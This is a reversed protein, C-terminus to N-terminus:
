MQDYLRWLAYIITDVAPAIQTVLTSAENPVTTWGNFTYGSRTLQPFPAHDAVIVVEHKYVEIVIWEDEPYNRAGNGAYTVTVKVPDEIVYQDGDPDAPDVPTSPVGPNEPDGPVTGPGDKKGNGQQVGIWYAYVTTDALMTVTTVKTTPDYRRLSWDDNFDYGRRTLGTPAYTALTVVTHKRIGPVVVPGGAGGNRDFTLSFVWPDEIVYWTDNPGSPNSPTSPVGPNDPDGPESAVTTTKGDGLQMGNWYAWVTMDDDVFLENTKTRSDFRRTSWGGFDWGLRILGTPGLTNLYVTDYKLVTHSVLTSASDGNGNFTLTVSFPDEIVYWEEPDEPDPTPPPDDPNDPDGPDNPDRTKKGRGEQQGYWYAYVTTPATVTIQNTKTTPDYRRTSWGEFEYGRKILGTPGVSNLNTITTGHPVNVVTTTHARDGNGDFTLPYETYPGFVATFTKNGSSGTPIAVVGATIQRTPDGAETWYLFPYGIASANGIYIDPDSKRYQTLATNPNNIAVGAGLSPLVWNVNYVQFKDPIGDGDEDLSYFFHLNTTPNVLMIDVSITRPFDSELTYIVPPNSDIQYGVAVWDTFPPAVREYRYSDPYTRTFTQPSTVGPLPAGDEDSYTEIVTFPGEEDDPIGNGNTDIKYTFTVTLDNPVLFTVHWNPDVPSGYPVVTNLRQIPNDGTGYNYSFPVWGTVGSSIEAVTKDYVFLNNVTIPGKLTIGTTFQLHYETVTYGDGEEDDPINNENRDIKYVYTVTTNATVYFQVEFDEYIPHGPDYTLAGTDKHVRPIPVDTGTGIRYSVPVWGVDSSDVYVRVDKILYKYEFLNNRTVPTKLNANDTNKVHYETVTYGDGEEDDPIDNRNEDKKYTYTLTTDATVYFSVWYDNYIPYGPDYTISSTADNWRPIQTVTGSGIQFSVPVYGMGDMDFYARVDKVQYNYMYLNPRVVDAKVIAGAPTDKVHRETVTYGDGEEDDPIKNNNEDKKYTYTIEADATVYFEVEFTTDVPFGPAFTRTGTAADWRPIPTVLGSGIRYSVPIYHVGAADVEARVDEITYRYVFLNPRIVDAMMIGTPDKVHHETVTYGDGEEDDPINNHNLDPKYFYTVSTYGTVPFTVYQYMDVASPFGGPVRRLQEETGYNIIYSVPVWDEHEPLSQARLDGLMRNYVIVNNLVVPNILYSGNTTRVHYETVTYGDEEDDPIDNENRDIKYTYTIETNATVYFQVVHNPNIPYGPDYTETNTVDDWRPIQTTAGSGIRYSVPVWRVGESDYYGRVEWIAYKYEFLNPRSVDPMVQGITDKVHHEIVTYGDGEEDDPIDNRNEDKKYTYTVTTNATVYFSVWYDNYIPYGPDYTISSTADNWRPIQTVTGSGIQFSVPVYGMGDMDFYARVDKVQYNYIFLNTRVVNPKVLVGAPTDKVHVETVTYGAGDNEEDDPINNRNEDKKYTYTVTTNAVVNFVVRHAEYIPYGAAYTTTGADENWRPIPTVAGTAGIQYSVPVYGMGTSDQTARIDSIAFDYVLLGTHAVDPMVISGDTFKVHHDTVTYGGGEEDDPILNGNIDEKYYYTVTMDAAVPFEVYKEIDVPSGYPNVMNLRDLPVRAAGDLSYEVPVWGSVGAMIDKVQRSYFVTQIEYNPKLTNGDPDLHIETVIFGDEEDDPIWNNNKDEKYYYTVITDALIPFTVHYTKDVRSGYPHAPDERPIDERTGAGIIYYIPVWGSIKVDEIVRDYILDDPPYDYTFSASNPPILASTDDRRYYETVTYPGEDEDPIRNGNKDVKYYFRLDYNTMVNTITVTIPPLPAPPTPTLNEVSDVIVGDSIRIVDYAYEVWGEFYPAPKIYNTNTTVTFTAPNLPNAANPALLTTKDKERYSETISYVSNNYVAYLHIESIGTPLVFPVTGSVEYRTGNTPTTQWAIIWTGSPITWGFTTQDPLYYPETRGRWFNIREMETRGPLNIYFFAKLVDSSPMFVPILTIDSLVYLTAYPYYIRLSTDGVIRWGVFLEGADNTMDSTPPLNMLRAVTGVEYVNPDTPLPGSYGDAGRAYTITHSTKRWRAYLNYTPTYIPNDKPYTALMGSTLYDWCIFEGLGPVNYGPVYHVGGVLMTDFNPIRGGMDVPVTGLLNADSEPYRDWFFVTVATPTWRAYVAYDNDPMTVSWDFALIGQPDQYWADFIYNTRAPPTSVRLSTYGAPPPTLDLPQGYMVQVPALETNNYRFNFTHRTYFFNTYMYTAQQASTLANFADVTIGVETTSTAYRRIVRYPSDLADTYMGTIAKPALRQGVFTATDDLIYTKGDITFSTGTQGPWQEYFYRTTYNPLTPTGLAVVEIGAANINAPMLDSNATVRRTLWLEFPPNSDDHAYGAFVNGGLNFSTVNPSAPWIDYLYQGYKIDLTFRNANNYVTGGITMGYSNEEFTFTLRYVRRRAYVCIVTDDAPSIVASSPQLLTAYRMPDDIATPTPPLANITVTSDPTGMREEQGVYVFNSLNDTPDLITGAALNEKELFYAVYYRASNVIPDYKAYLVIDQTININYNFATGVVDEDVSWHRFTYHTERGTPIPLGGMFVTPLYTGAPVGVTAIENAYTIFTVYYQIHFVPRLVVDHGIAGLTQTNFQFQVPSVAGEPSETWFDIVANEPLVVNTLESVTPALVRDTPLVRKSLEYCVEGTGHLFQVLYRPSFIAYLAVPGMVPTTVNYPVDEDTATASTFWGVFSVYDPPITPASPLTMVDGEHVEATYYLDTGVYFTVNYVAQLPVVPESGDLDEDEAAAEAEAEAEAEAAAEAEGEGEAEAGPEADTVAAEGPDDTEESIAPDEPEAPEMPAAPLEQDLGDAADDVGDIEVMPLDSPMDAGDISGEAEAEDEPAALSGETETIAPRDIEDAGPDAGPAAEVEYKPAEGPATDIADAGDGDIAEAEAEIESEAEAGPVTEVAPMEIDGLEADAYGLDEPMEAAVSIDTEDSTPQMTGDPGIVYTQSVYDDGSGAPVGESFATNVPLLSALMAIVLLLSCLRRPKRTSQADMATNNNGISERKM